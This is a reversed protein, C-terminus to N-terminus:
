WSEGAEHEIYGKLEHEITDKDIKLQVIEKKLLEVQKKLEKNEQELKSLEM